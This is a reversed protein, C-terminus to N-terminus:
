EKDDNVLPLELVFTAGKGEGESYAKLSGGHAEALKRSVYLGIGTGSVSLKTQISVFQEFIKELNEPAIGEGNDTIIVKITNDNTKELRFDIHRDEDHTHKVANDIINFIIQEIRDPDIRVPYEGEVCDSFTINDGLQLRYTSKLEKQMFECFDMRKTQLELIGKELKTLNSVGQILREFRYINRKLLDFIEKRKESDLQDFGRELLESYAQFATLPTRLEHSTMAIFDSRKKDLEERAAEALKKDTINEMSGEYYVVEGTKPDRIARTNERIYITKGDLRKIEIEKQFLDQETLEREFDDRPYNIKKSLDKINTKYLEEFTKFGLLDLMARNAAVFKGDPTSRYLGVPINDFLAKYDHEYQEARREARRKETLLASFSVKFVGLGFLIFAIIFGSLIVVLIIILQSLYFQGATREYIVAIQNAVSLIDSRTVVVCLLLNVNKVKQYFIVKEIEKTFNEGTPLTIIFEGSENQFAEQFKNKLEINDLQYTLNMDGILKDFGPQSSNLTSNALIKLSQDLLISYGSRKYTISSIRDSITKLLIDVGIVGFFETGNFYPISVTAVLEGTVIDIYISWTTTNGSEKAAIYWPRNRTDFNAPLVKSLNIFPFYRSIAAKESGFYAGLIIDSEAFSNFYNGAASFLEVTRNVEATLNTFNPIFVDGIGLDEYLVYDGNENIRFYSSNWRPDPNESELLNELYSQLLIIEKERNEFFTELQESESKLITRLETQAVTFLQENAIERAQSTAQFIIISGISSGIILPIIASAAIVLILKRSFLSVHNTNNLGM